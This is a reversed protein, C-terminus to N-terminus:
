QGQLGDGDRRDGLAVVGSSMVFGDSRGCVTRDRGPQWYGMGRGEGNNSGGIM